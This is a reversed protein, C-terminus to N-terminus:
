FFTINQITEPKTSKSLMNPPNCFESRIIKPLGEIPFVASAVFM